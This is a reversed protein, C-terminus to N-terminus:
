DELFPVGRCVAYNLHLEYEVGLKRMLNIGKCFVVFSFYCLTEDDIYDGGWRWVM